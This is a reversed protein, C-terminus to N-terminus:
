GYIARPSNASILCPSKCHRCVKVKSTFRWLTYLLGPLIMVCWLVLEIILSGKTLKKPKATRGCNTCYMSKM